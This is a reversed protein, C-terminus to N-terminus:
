SDAYLYKYLLLTSWLTIRKLVDVRNKLLSVPLAPHYRYGTLLRVRQKCDFFCLLASSRNHGRSLKRSNNLLAEPFSSPRPLINRGSTLNSLQSPPFSIAVFRFSHHAILTASITDLTVPHFKPLATSYYCM